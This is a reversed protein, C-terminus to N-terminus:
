LKLASASSSTKRSLWWSLLFLVGAVLFPSGFLLVITFGYVAIGSIVLAFSTLILLIGALWQRWWSVICGAVAVIVLMANLVGRILGMEQQMAMFIVIEGILFVLFFAAALLGIIRAAWRIRKALRQQKITSM